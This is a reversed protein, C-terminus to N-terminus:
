FINRKKQQQLPNPKSQSLSNEILPQNKIASPSSLQVNSLGM